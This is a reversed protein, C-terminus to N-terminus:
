VQMTECVYMMGNPNMRHPEAMRFAKSEPTIAHAIDSIVISHMMM